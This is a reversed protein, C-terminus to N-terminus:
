RARLAIEAGLQGVESGALILEQGLFGLVPRRDAIQCLQLGLDRGVAGFNRRQRLLALVSLCLRSGTLLVLFM